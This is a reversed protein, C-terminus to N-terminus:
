EERHVTTQQSSDFIEQGFQVPFVHSAFLVGGEMEYPSEYFALRKSQTLCRKKHGMWVSLLGSLVTNFYRPM